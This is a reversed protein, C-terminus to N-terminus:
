KGKMEAITNLCYMVAGVGEEVAAREEDSDVVFPMIKGIFKDPHFRLFHPRLLDRLTPPEGSDLEQSPTLIFEKIAPPTLESPALPPTFSPWPIDTFFLSGLSPRDPHSSSLLLFWRENYEQICEQKQEDERLAKRRERTREEEEEREEREKREQRERRVQERKERKRREYEEMRRKRERFAAQDTIVFNIDGVRITDGLKYHGKLVWESFTRDDMIDIDLDNQPTRSDSRWRAPVRASGPVGHAASTPNTDEMYLRTDEDRQEDVLRQANQIEEGSMLELDDVHGIGETFLTKNSAVQHNSEASQKAKRKLRRKAKWEQERIEAPTLKLRPL